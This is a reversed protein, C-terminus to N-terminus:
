VVISVIKLPVYRFNKVEKDQLCQTINQMAMVKERVENENNEPTVDVFGRMKGNIQIGISIIEEKAMEPDYTPWPQLHISNKPDWESYGHFTQWLEEALFVQFPSILRLFGLWTDHSIFATQKAKNVFIMIESVATNMKLSDIMKSVNRVTRHYLRSFQKDEDPSSTVKTQLAYINEALRRCSKLGGENWPLTADYPGLFCIYTRVADAGYKELITNLDVVNGSSKSQKHGDEGLLIGGNIRWTYPEPTPVLQQDYLFQHWFRSYLLHLTTHESGGFYQDVPLWYKLKKPDAFTKKNHPDIYRLYYWCSGAWNPMTNTERDAPLGDKAVVKVWSRNKALPSTGDSSPAYDPVEPLLLPLKEEVDQENTTQTIAEVTGDSKHILPIPEGWYRQRSFLWDRLRYVVKTYGANQLELNRLVAKSMTDCSITNASEKLENETLLAKVEQTLKIFGNSPEFPIKNDTTSENPHITQVVPLNFTTAFDFDRKDHAPVGMIAGTGYGPLIYEAIYLPIPTKQFPHLVTLGQLLVGTKKKVTQREIDSLNKASERYKQVEDFNTVFQQLQDVFSHEPTMALFSVGFITDPRTTFVDLTLVQNTSGTQCIPFKIIAGESRGIWNQQAAKIYEPFDIKELGELLKDAYKTIKLVWQKLKRKEVPYEGRESIKEGHQNEIVEENALVTKLTECWWVSEEKYEALGAEWFKLFIWQTWKYYETDTTNIVRNWDVAFGADKFSKTFSTIATETTISPHVGTRIAYNEAPLGFADWGIPFLVNFGSMRLKRSYIEPVTYRMFHGMHLGSGSPYPFEVLIYKKPKESFDTAAYINDEVWKNRWHAEITKHDFKLTM